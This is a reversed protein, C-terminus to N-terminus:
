CRASVAQKRMQLREALSRNTGSTTIIWGRTNAAVLSWGTIVESRPACASYKSVSSRPPMRLNATLTQRAPNSKTAPNAPAPDIPHRPGHSEASTAFPSCDRIANRADDATRQARLQLQSFEAAIRECNRRSDAADALAQLAHARAVPDGAATATALEATAASVWDRIIALEEETEQLNTAISRLTREAARLNHRTKSGATPYFWGTPFPDFGAVVVGTRERRM